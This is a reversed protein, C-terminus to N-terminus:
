SNLLCWDFISKEQTNILRVDNFEHCLTLVHTGMPHKSCDICHWKSKDEITYEKKYKTTQFDFGCWIGYMKLHGKPTIEYHDIRFFERAQAKLFQIGAIYSIITGVSYRNMFNKEETSM